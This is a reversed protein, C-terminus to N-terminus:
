ARRRSAEQTRYLDCILMARARKQKMVEYVKIQAIWEFDAEIVSQRDEALANREAVTGESLTFARARYRKRKIELEEMCGKAEAFPEDTEALYQLAKEMLEQTVNM